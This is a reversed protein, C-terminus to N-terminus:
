ASVSVGSHSTSNLWPGPGRQDRAARQRPKVVRAIFRATAAPDNLALEPPIKGPDRAHVIVPHLMREAVTKCRIRRPARATVIIPPTVTILAVHKENMLQDGHLV